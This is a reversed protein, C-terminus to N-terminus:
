DANRVAKRGGRGRLTREVEAPDFLIPRRSARLFPIYGRRAWGLITAPKVLLRKALQRADIFETM